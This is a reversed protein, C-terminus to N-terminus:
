SVLVGVPGEQYREMSWDCLTEFPISPLMTALCVISETAPSGTPSKKLLDM